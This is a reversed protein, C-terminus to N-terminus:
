SHLTRQCADCLTEYRTGVQKGCCQCVYGSSLLNMLFKIM